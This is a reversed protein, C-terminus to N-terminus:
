HCNISTQCYMMWMRAFYCKVRIRINKVFTSTITIPIICLSISTIELITSYCLLYNVVEKREKNQKM